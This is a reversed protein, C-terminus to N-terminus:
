DVTSELLLLAQASVNATKTILSNTQDAPPNHPAQIMRSSRVHALASLQAKTGPLRIPALHAKHHRTEASVIASQLLPTLNQSNHALLRHVVQRIAFALVPYPTWDQFHPASLTLLNRLPVSANALASTVTGDITPKVNFRLKMQAIASM